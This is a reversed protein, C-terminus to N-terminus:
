WFWFRGVVLVNVNGRKDIPLYNKEALIIGKKSSLTSYQSGGVSWDSSGHEIDGYEGKPMSRMLGLLVVAIYVLSFKWFCSWFMGIYGATFSQSVTEFFNFYSNGIAPLFNNMNFTGLNLTNQIAVAIPSIFLLSIVIWLVMAVILKGRFKSFGRFFREKM